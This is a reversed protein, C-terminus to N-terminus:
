RQSPISLTLTTTLKTKLLKIKKRLEKLSLRDEKILARAYLKRLREIEAELLTIDNINRFYIM